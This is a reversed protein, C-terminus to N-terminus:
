YKNYHVRTADFRDVFKNLGEEAPYGVAIVGYPKVTEPLAFMNILFEDRSDGTGAGMWCTGLGETVAQLLLNEVCAGMDQPAHSPAYLGQKELVVIARPAGTLLKSYRSFESLQMVKDKETLVIFEWPQQNGRSPAQMAAKLLMELKEAEVPKDMFKRVSRRIFIENM